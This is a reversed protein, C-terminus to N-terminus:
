NYKQSIQKIINEQNDFTYKPLIKCLKFDIKLNITM